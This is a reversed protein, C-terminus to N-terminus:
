SDAAAGTLFEDAREPPRAIIARTDDEIIPRQLRKPDALLADIIANDDGGDGAQERLLESAPVDLKEILTKLQDRQPPTKLYEITEVDAGADRLRALATRSKSCRPNHYIRLM